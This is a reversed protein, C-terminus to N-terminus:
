DFLYPPGPPSGIMRSMAADCLADVHAESGATEESEAYAFCLLDGRRPIADNVTSTHLQVSMARNCWSITEDDLAWALFEEQALSPRRWYTGLPGQVAHISIVHACDPGHCLMTHPPMGCAEAWENLHIQAKEHWERSRHHALESPHGIAATRRLIPLEREDPTMPRMAPAPESPAALRLAGTCVSVALVLGAAISAAPRAGPSVTM